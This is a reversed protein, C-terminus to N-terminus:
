FIASGVVGLISLGIGFVAIVIAVISLVGGSVRPSAAMFFGTAGLVAAGIELLLAWGPNGIVVLIVGAIAAMFAVIAATGTRQGFTQNLVAM